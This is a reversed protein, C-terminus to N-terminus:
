FIFPMVDSTIDVSNQHIPPGITRLGDPDAQKALFAASQNEIDDAFTEIEESNHTASSFSPGRMTITLLILTNGSIHERVLEQM